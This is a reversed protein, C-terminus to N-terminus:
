RPTRSATQQMHQLLRGQDRAVVLLCVNALSSWLLATCALTTVLPRSKLSLFLVGAGLLGFGISTSILMDPKLLDSSKPFCVSWVSGLALLLVGVFKRAKM